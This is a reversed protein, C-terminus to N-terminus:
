KVSKNVTKEPKVIYTRRKYKEWYYLPDDETKVTYLTANDRWPDLIIADEIGKGKEAVTLVNHEYRRGQYAVARQLTLTNYTRGEVLHAKM